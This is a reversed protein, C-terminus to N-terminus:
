MPHVQSMNIVSNQVAQNCFSLDFNEILFETFPVALTLWDSQKM